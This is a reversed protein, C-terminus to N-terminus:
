FQNYSIHAGAEAPAWDAQLRVGCYSLKGEEREPDTFAGRSEPWRLLRGLMCHGCRYIM